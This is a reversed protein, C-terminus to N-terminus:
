KWFFYLVIESGLILGALILSRIINKKIKDINESLVTYEPSNHYTSNPKANQPEPANQRNVRLKSKAESTGPEWSLTFSYKAHSKQKKTRKKSM